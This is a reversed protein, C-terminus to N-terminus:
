TIVVRGLCMHVNVGTHTLKDMYSTGMQIFPKCELMIPCWPFCLAREREKKEGSLEPEERWKM